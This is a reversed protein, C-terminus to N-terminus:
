FNLVGKCCGNCISLLMIDFVEGVNVWSFCFFVNIWWWMLGFLFLILFISDVILVFESFLKILCVIGVFIVSDFGSFYLLFVVFILVNFLSLVMVCFFLILWEKM